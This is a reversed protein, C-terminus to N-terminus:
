HFLSKVRGWTSPLTPDCYGCWPNPDINWSVSSYPSIFLDLNGTPGTLTAGYTTFCMGVEAGGCSGASSPGAVSHGHDFLFQALTYTNVPNPQVADFSSTLRVILRDGSSYDFSVDIADVRNTGGLGPCLPGTGEGAISIRGQQCGGSEFNWADPYSPKTYCSTYMTEVYFEFQIGTIAQALGKGSLVMKYTGPGNFDKRPSGGACADWLFQGSPTTPVPEAYAAPVALVTAVLLSSILRM